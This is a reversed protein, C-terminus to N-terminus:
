QIKLTLLSLLCSRSRSPSSTFVPGALEGLLDHGKGHAAVVGVDYASEQGREGVRGGPVAEDDRREEAPYFRRPPYM